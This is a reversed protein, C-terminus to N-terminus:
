HIPLRDAWPDLYPIRWSEGFLGKSFGLATFVLFFLFLALRFVVIVIFGLIPIMGLTADIIGLLFLSLVELCFLAFGQRCHRALFASKESSFIPIFVLISLYAIAALWRDKVTIESEM